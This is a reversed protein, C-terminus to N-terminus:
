VSFDFDMVQSSMSSSIKMIRFQLNGGVEIKIYAYKKPFTEWLGKV